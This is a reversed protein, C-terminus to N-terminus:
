SAAIKGRMWQRCAQWYLPSSRHMLWMLLANGIAALAFLGALPLGSSLLLVAGLAGGVMFAANLINNAAVIRARHEPPSRLQMQTYLPVIFVGGSVGLMLLDFLVRWLAPDALVVSLAQVTATSTGPNPFNSATWAFDLGFVSLGLAGLPVLGLELRRGSLHQCLFSGGGIGLTFVLLLLSVTSEGGRLLQQAMAPFQALFLAGFLWFWSIALLTRFIERDSRAFRLNALTEAFPNPNLRLEPVAPPAAPIHRSTWYGLAALGISGLSIWATAGDVAALLAGLLTGTLIAVFTGTEVWANGALLEDPRLHQPLIAYKVPGFLTSQFGMLFLAFMLLPLSQLAFGMAALGMVVIELLKSMRALLAKDYKDALQGASASFLFFPLIFLGAALNALLGSSLSTWSAAQFTLLVILANKFLNDNFAGLFQTAFFPAFRRSALLHASEQPNKAPRQPDMGDVSM